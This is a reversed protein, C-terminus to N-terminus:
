YLDVWGPTANSVGGGALGTDSVYGVFKQTDQLFVLMGEAPATIAADRAAADAYVGPTISSEAKIDGRVDLKATPVFGGISM